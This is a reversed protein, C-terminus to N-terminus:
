NLTPHQHSVSHADNFRSEGSSDWVPMLTRTKGAGVRAVRNRRERVIKAMVTWWKGPVFVAACLEAGLKIGPVGACIAKGAVFQAVDEIGSVQFSRVIRGLSEAHQFLVFDLAETLVASSAKHEGGVVPERLM